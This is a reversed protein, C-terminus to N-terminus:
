LAAAAVLIDWPGPQARHLNSMGAAVQCWTGPSRGLGTLLDWGAAMLSVCVLVVHEKCRAKAYHLASLHSENSLANRNKKSSYKSCSHLALPILLWHNNQHSKWTAPSHEWLSPFNPPSPRGMKPHAQHKMLRPRFSVSFPLVDELVVYM